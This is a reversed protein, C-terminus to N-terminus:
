QKAHYSFDLMERTHEDFLQDEANVNEENPKDEENAEDMVQQIEKELSKWEAVEQAHEVAHAAALKKKELLQQRKQEGIGHHIAMAERKRQLEEEHRKKQEESVQLTHNVTESATEQIQHQIFERKREATFQKMEMVKKLVDGTLQSNIFEESEEELREKVVSNRERKHGNHVDVDLVVNNFNEAM